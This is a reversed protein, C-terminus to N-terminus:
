LVRELYSTEFTDLWWLVADNDLKILNGAVYTVQECEANPVWGLLKAKIQARVNKLDNLSHEGTADAVNRVASVVGFRETVKQSLAQGALSNPAASDALPIVFLSPFVKLMVNAAPIDASGGVSKFVNGTKLQTVVEDLALSM